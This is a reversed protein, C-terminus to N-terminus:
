PKQHALFESVVEVFGDANEWHVSHAADDIVKLTVEPHNAYSQHLDNPTFLKDNAGTLALAEFPLKTPLHIPELYSPLAACQQTFADCSQKFPYAMSAAIAGTVQDEDAFFRASFLFQFLLRFWDAENAQTRLRALTNFLDVRAPDVTFPASVAVLTNIREPAKAAVAWAILAGMSHGVLTVKEIELSDLLALVDDVMLARSTDVISPRTQGACRNDMRIINAHQSLKAVVPNWSASDSAMGALLLVPPGQGVSDFYHDIGLRSLLPM